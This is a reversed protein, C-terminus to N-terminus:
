PSIIKNVALSVREPSSSQDLSYLCKCFAEGSPRLCANMSLRTWLNWCSSWFGCFWPRSTKRRGTNVPRQCKVSRDSCLCTCFTLCRAPHEVVELRKYQVTHSLASWSCVSTTKYVIFDDEANVYAEEHLHSRHDPPKCAPRQCELERTRERIKEPSFIRLM